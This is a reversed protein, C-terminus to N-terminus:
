LTVLCLKTDSCFFAQQVSWESHVNYIRRVHMCSYVPRAILTRIHMNNGRWVVVASNAHVHM